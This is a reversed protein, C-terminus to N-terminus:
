RVEGVPTVDLRTIRAERIVNGPGGDLTYRLRVEGAASLYKPGDPVISTGPGVEFNDWQAGPWNFVSITFPATAARTRGTLTGEVNVRLQDLYFQGESPPLAFQLTLAEGPSVTYFERDTPAGSGIGLDRRNM